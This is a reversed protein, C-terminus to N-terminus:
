LYFYLDCFIYIQYLINFVHIKNTFKVDYNKIIKSNLDNKYLTFSIEKSEYWETIKDMYDQVEMEAEQNKLMIKRLKSDRAKAGKELELIRANM